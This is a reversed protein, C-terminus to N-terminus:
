YSACCGLAGCRGWAPDVEQNFEQFLAAAGRVASANASRITFYRDLAGTVTPRTLEPRPYCRAFDADGHDAAKHEVGCQVYAGTRLEEFVLAGEKEYLRWMTWDGIRRDVGTKLPYVVGTNVEIFYFVAKRGAAQPDRIGYRAERCGQDKAYNFSAVIFDRKGTGGAPFQRMMAPYKYSVEIKRDGTSTVRCEVDTRRNTTVVTPAFRIGRPSSITDLMKLVEAPKQRWNEPLMNDCVDPANDIMSCEANVVQERATFMSKCAPVTCLVVAVVLGTKRARM